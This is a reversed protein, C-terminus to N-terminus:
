WPCVLIELEGVAMGRARRIEERGVEGAGVETSLSSTM